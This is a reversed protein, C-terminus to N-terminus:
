TRGAAVETAGLTAQVDVIRQKDASSNAYRLSAALHRLSPALEGRDRLVIGAAQHAYSAAIDDPRLTVLRLARELAEGPLSLALALLDAADDLENYWLLKSIGEILGEFVQRILEVAEPSNPEPVDAMVLSDEQATLVLAMLREFFLNIITESKQPDSFIKKLRDRLFAVTLTPSQETNKM